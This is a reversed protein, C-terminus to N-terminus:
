DYCSRSRVHPQHETDLSDQLSLTDLAQSLSLADVGRAGLAANQRRCDGEGEEGRRVRREDGDDLQHPHPQQRATTGLMDGLLCDLSQSEEVALAMAGGAGGGGAGHGTATGLRGAHRENFVRLSDWSQEM